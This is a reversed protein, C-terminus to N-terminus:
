WNAWCIIKDGGIEGGLGGETNQGKKVSIWIDSPEFGLFLTNDNDEFRIDDAPGIVRSKLNPEKISIFYQLDANANNKRYVKVAFSQKDSEYCEAIQKGLKPTGAFVSLSSFCIISLNMFYKM